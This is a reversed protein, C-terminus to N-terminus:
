AVFDKNPTSWTVGNAINWRTSMSLDSGVKFGEENAKAKAAAEQAKREEERRKLYDGVIKEVTDKDAATAPPLEGGAAGEGGAKAAPQTITGLQKQLDEIQKKQQELQEKLARLDDKDDAYASGGALMAAAVGGVFLARVFKRWLRKFMIQPEKGPLHFTRYGSWTGARRRCAAM